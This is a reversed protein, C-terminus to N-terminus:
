QKKERTTITVLQKAAKAIDYACQIVQQTLLQFDVPAGPEPPVTKRCESQLRYASANLLRLSSRVPELAPRQLSSPTPGQVEFWSGHVHGLTDERTEVWTTTVNGVGAGGQSGKLGARREPGQVKPFLSAMETVALHIKESCPVFSHPCPLPFLPLTQLFLVNTM